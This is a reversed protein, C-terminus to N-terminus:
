LSEAQSDYIFVILLMASFWQPRYLRVGVHSGPVQLELMFTLATFGGTIAATNPVTDKSIAVTSNPIYATSAPLCRAVPVVSKPYPHPSASISSSTDDV